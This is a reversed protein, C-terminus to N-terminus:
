HAQKEPRKGHHEGKHFRKAARLEKRDLKGDNNRDLAAFEKARQKEVEDLTVKGDGNMDLRRQMRDAARAAIRKTALAELEERSLVGDGNSDAAKLEDMRSFKTLDVPEKDMHKRVHDSLEVKTDATEAENSDQALAPSVFVISTALIIYAPLSKM